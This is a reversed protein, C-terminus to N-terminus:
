HGGHGPAHEDGSLDHGAHGAANPDSHDTAALGVYIRARSGEEADLRMEWANLDIHHAGYQLLDLEPCEEVPGGYELEPGALAEIDVDSTTYVLWDYHPADVNINVYGTGTRPVLVQYPSVSWIMSANHTEAAAGKRAALVWDQGCARERVAKAGDSDFDVPGEEFGQAQCGPLVLLGTSLGLSVLINKNSIM